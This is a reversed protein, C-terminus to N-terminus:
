CSLTKVQNVTLHLSATTRASSLQSSSLPAEHLILETPNSGGSIEAPMENEIKRLSQLIGQVEKIFTAEEQNSQSYIARFPDTRHM